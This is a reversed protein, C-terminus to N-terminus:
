KLLLESQKETFLHSITTSNNLCMEKTVPYEEIFCVKEPISDTHMYLDEIEDITPPFLEINSNKTMIPGGRQRLPDWGLYYMVCFLIHHIETAFDKVTSNSAKRKRTTASFKAYKRWLLTIFKQPYFALNRVTPTEEDVEEELFTFKNHIKAEILSVIFPESFGFSSLGSCYDVGGCCLCWFMLHIRDQRSGYSLPMDTCRIIEYNTEPIPQKGNIKDSLQCAKKCSGMSFFEEQGCLYTTGIKVLLNPVAHGLVQIFSDWDITDFCCPSYGPHNALIAGWQFCETDAEGWQTWQNTDVAKISPPFYHRQGNPADIIFQTQNSASPTTMNLIDVITPKNKKDELSDTECIDELCMSLVNWLKGKAASSNWIRSWVVSGSSGEPIHTPTIKPVLDSDLPADQRKYLRKDEGLIENEKPPRTAPKYRKETYFTGREEPVLHSSDFCFVILNANKYTKMISSFFLRMVSMPIMESTKGQANYGFKNRLVANVDIVVSKPSVLPNSAPYLARVIGQSTNDLIARKNAATAGWGM